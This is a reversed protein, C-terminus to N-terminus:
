GNKRFLLRFVPLGDADARHERPSKAGFPNETLRPGTPAPTLGSTALCLAEYGAAREEVAAIRGQVIEGLLQDHLEIGRRAHLQRM